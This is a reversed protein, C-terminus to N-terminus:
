EDVEGFIKEYVDPDGDSWKEVWERAEAETIPEIGSGGCRTHDDVREAWRSAAGGNGYIFYEGTKKRFLTEEAFGFDRRTYGNSACYLEKATETDYKKGNIIKKM